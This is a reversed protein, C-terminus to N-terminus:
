ANCVHARDTPPPKASDVFAPQDAIEYWCLRIKWALNLAAPFVPQTPRLGTVRFGSSGDSTKRGQDSPDALFIPPLMGQALLNRVRKSSGEATPLGRQGSQFASEPM